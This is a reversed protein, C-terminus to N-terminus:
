LHLTHVKRSLDKGLIPLTTWLQLEPV